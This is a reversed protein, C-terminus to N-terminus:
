WQKQLGPKATKITRSRRNLLQLRRDVAAKAAVLKEGLVTQIQERLAFLQDITMSEWESM